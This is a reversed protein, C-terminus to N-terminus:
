LRGFAASIQGGLLVIDKVCLAMQVTEAADPDLNQDSMIKGALQKQLRLLEELTAEAKQEVYAWRELCHRVM